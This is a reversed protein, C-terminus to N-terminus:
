QGAYLDSRGNDYFVKNQASKENLTQMQLWSDVYPQGSYDQSDPVIQDEHPVPRLVCTEM